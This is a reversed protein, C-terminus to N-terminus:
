DEGERIKDVIKQTSENIKLTGFVKSLNLRKEPIYLRIEKNPKIHARKIIDRSLAIGISNGWKRTITKVEIM